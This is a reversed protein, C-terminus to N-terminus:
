CVFLFIEWFTPGTVTKENKTVKASTRFVKLIITDYKLIELVNSTLPLYNIYCVKWRNLSIISYLQKINFKAICKNNFTVLTNFTLYVYSILILLKWPRLKSDTKRMLLSLNIKLQHGDTINRTVKLLIILSNSIIITTIVIGLVYNKFFELFGKMYKM